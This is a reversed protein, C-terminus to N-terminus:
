KTKTDQKNETFYKEIYEEYSLNERLMQEYDKEYMWVFGKSPRNKVLGNRINTLGTSKTVDTISEFKSVFEKDLSLQVVGSKNRLRIKDKREFDITGSIYEDYYAWYYGCSSGTINRISKGIPQPAINYYDAAEKISDWFRILNRDFDFQAIKVRHISLLLEQHEKPMPKGYNPNNEGTFAKRLKEKSKETHRYGYASDGAIVLNYGYKNNCSNYHKIWNEELETLSDISDAIIYYYKFSDEGYKDWSRQM